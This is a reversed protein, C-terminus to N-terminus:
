RGAVTTTTTRPTTRTSSSPLVRDMHSAADPNRSGEAAALEQAQQWTLRDLDALPEALEGEENAIASVFDRRNRAGPREDDTSLFRDNALSGLRGGVWAGAIGGVVAGGVGLVGSCVPAGPGCVAGAALGGFFGGLAGGAAGGGATAGGAVAVRIRRRGPDVDEDEQWQNYAGGAFNLVHGTRSLWTSLTKTARPPQRKVLMIVTMEEYTLRAIVRGDAFMVIHTSTRQVRVKVKTPPLGEIHKDLAELLRKVTEISVTAGAGFEAGFILALLDDVEQDVDSEKGVMEDWQRAPDRRALDRLLANTSMSSINEEDANGATGPACDTAKVAEGVLRVWTGVETVQDIWVRLAEPTGETPMRYDLECRVQYEILAECLKRIRLTLGADMAATTGGFRILRGPRASTTDVDDASV